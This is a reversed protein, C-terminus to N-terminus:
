GGHVEKRRSVADGDGRKLERFVVTSLLTMGGLVLFARHIGHIFLAPNSRSHDPIFFVTVL